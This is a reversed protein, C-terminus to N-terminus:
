NMALYNGANHISNAPTEKLRGCVSCKTYGTHVVWSHNATNFKAGCIKCAFWHQTINSSYTSSKAFKCEHGFKIIGVSQTSNPKSNDYYYHLIDQWTYGQKALLNSGKQSLVGSGKGYTLSAHYDSCFLKGTSTVMYYAKLASVANRIVQTQSENTAVPLMYTVEKAGIDYGSGERYHGARAWWCLMKVAMVNAYVAAQKYGMAGIENCTINVVAETFSVTRPVDNEPKIDITSPQTVFDIFGNTIGRLASEYENTYAYIAGMYWSDDQKVVICIHRSKGTSFFDNAYDVTTDIEVLYCAFANNEYYDALEKYFAPAFGDDVRELSIIQVHKIALVGLGDAQNQPNLAFNRYEERISPAYCEVWANWDNRDIAGWYARVAAEQEPDSSLECVM